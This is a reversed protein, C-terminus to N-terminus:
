IADEAGLRLRAIYPHCALPALSKKPRTVGPCAAVACPVYRSDPFDSVLGALRRCSSIPDGDERFLRAEEWLADDRLESTGFDRYLKEFCARARAHDHLRDRALACLRVMAPEYRPREYSGVLWSSEREALM